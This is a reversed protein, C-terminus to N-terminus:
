KKFIYTCKENMNNREERGMKEKGERPATKV